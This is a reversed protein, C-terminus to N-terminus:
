NGSFIDAFVLAGETDDCATDMSREDGNGAEAAEEAEDQEDKIACIYDIDVENFTLADIEAVLEDDDTICMAAKLKKFKDTAKGRCDRALHGPKGCKYCKFGTSGGPKAATSSKPKDSKNKDDGKKEVPPPVTPSSKPTPAFRVTPKNSKPVFARPEAQARHPDDHFDGPNRWVKHAGKVARVVKAGEVVDNIDNFPKLLLATSYLPTMLKIIRAAMEKEDM